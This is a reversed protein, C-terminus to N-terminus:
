KSEALKDLINIKHRAEVGNSIPQCKVEADCYLYALRHSSIRPVIKSVRNMLNCFGAIGRMIWYPLYIVRLKPFGRERLVRDVYDGQPLGQDSLNYIHGQTEQRQIIEILAGALDEVHIMRLLKKPSDFGILFNGM